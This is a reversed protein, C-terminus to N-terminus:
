SHYSITLITLDDSQEAEGAHTQVQELVFMTNEKPGYQGRGDMCQMLRQESFLEKATNEAETIGDTYALLTSGRELVTEQEKYSFGPFIGVTLNPFMELFAMKGDPSIILPPNHGGNCYRLQGTSLDLVMVLLTVFMNSENSEGISNNISEIILRPEGLQVAVSRFLSRTVAMLLSAPVGKGSVDGIAVYLKGQDIFFDYLDGGVEKAPVLVAYLDVDKREPFPPFIKPIMGMQIENAIRLESEIREKNSTTLQLEDIYKTLSHQMFDFSQHLKWMEDRSKIDPLKTHFNGGAISVASAAFDTLPRTITRITRICFWLLLILGIAVVLAVIQGIEDVAAFIDDRSCVVGVSWGTSEIPAYFAYSLTDDNQFIAMGREGAVMQEGIYRVTTDPMTEAISFITEALIRKPDHHVIYTGKKNVMFNYSHEYPKVGDVIRTLWELSIDATLVAFMKGQSDYLPKSFTSMIMEGGGDDFYPESWCSHGLSKPIQYWDMYHYDYDDTGLQISKISDGQRFNYPSYFRGREPFYSPEFAVASGVIIPNNELLKRSIGYMSDPYQLLSSVLWGTNNVAVEVSELVKDIRLISNSLVSVANKEAEEKVLKRSFYTSVSFAVLFLAATILLIRLSLRASFSQSLRNIKM